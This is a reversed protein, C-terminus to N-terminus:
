ASRAVRRDFAAALSVGAYLQEFSLPEGGARDDGRWNWLASQRQRGHVVDGELRRAGAAAPLDSGPLLLLPSREASDAAAFTGGLVNKATRGSRVFVSRGLVGQLLGRSLLLLDLSVRRAGM